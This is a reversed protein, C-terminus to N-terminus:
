KVIQVLKPGIQELPLIQSVCGMEIASRPMGYVVCSEESEAITSTVGADYLRKMSRAGDSGMGTLLVIHKKLGQLPLLSEFMVDVSPRHGNCAELSSLTAQYSGGAGAAVKLHLGGPAVYASGPLLEMGEEAEVVNLASLSNLRQALSKTFNPPMHQVIVIPAPFDAPLKELVAKLAKPGGTSTGIAVLDTFGTRSRSRPRDLDEQAQEQILQKRAKTEKVKKIPGPKVATEKAAAVPATPLPQKVTKSGGTTGGGDKAVGQPKEQKKPEGVTTPKGNRQSLTPETDQGQPKTIGPQGAPQRDPELKRKRSAPIIPLEPTPTRAEQLKAELAAQRMERREKALMAAKMQERLERGVQEIDYSSTSALPKRIFDFAGLELAMITERMGEENIGSLMIVPLPYDKMIVKLSELGNMVPMEVDMTVLDPKLEAVKDIAERGNVATAVVQFAPDLEILDSIIKRMFGSDDVVMVRYSMERMGCGGKAEKESDSIVDYGSICLDKSEQYLIM